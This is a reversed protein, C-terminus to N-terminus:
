AERNDKDARQDLINKFLSERLAVEKDNSPTAKSQQSQKRILYIVLAAAATIGIIQPWFKKASEM